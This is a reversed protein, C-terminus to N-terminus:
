KTQESYVNISLNFDPIADDLSNLAGTDGASDHLTPSMEGTSFKGFSESEVGVLARSISQQEFNRGITKM